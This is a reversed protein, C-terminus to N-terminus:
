MGSERIFVSVGYRWFHSFPSEAPTKINVQGIIRWPLSNQSTETKLTIKYIGSLPHYKDDKTVNVAIPGGFLSTVEPHDISSVATTSIDIVKAKQPTFEENNSYFTAPSGIHVRHLQNEELYAIIENKEHGVIQALRTRKSVWQGSHGQILENIQGSQPAYISGREIRSVIGALNSKAEAQERQLIQFQSLDTASGVHRDIRTQLYIIRRELLTQEKALHPLSLTFLLDGQEVQQGKTLDITLIKGDEPPFIDAKHKAELIAPLRVQQQWPLFLLLLTTLAITLTFILNRNLSMNKRNGWWIKMENMVPLGIFFVLEVLLLLIGLAKFTLHYVLLAIGLFLFFRYIWTAYAYLIFFRKRGDPLSEPIPEKLGFFLERLRWRALAFARQQLNEAGLFDSLAYYGDFRMFPSLNISMSTILSTTAVFFTASKFIGDDVFNWLFLSIFALSLETKVGATVISIRHKRSKLKWADTTDTYLFPYLVLFAVGITPVRCGLRKATYAHGLEHFIKVFFLTIGFFFAGKLSFFHLISSFFVDWQQVVLLSGICGLMIVFLRISPRFLFEISPLTKALFHDPRFLPVRIFLYQTLLWKIPGKRLRNNQDELRKQDQPTSSQILEHIVLFKLFMELDSDEISPDRSQLNSLWKAASVQNQWSRLMTFAIQGLRYYQNKLPDYLLWTPAGDEGPAAPTVNLDQRLVPLKLDEKDAVAHLASINSV